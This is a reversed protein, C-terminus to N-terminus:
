WKLITFNNLANCMERVYLHIKHTERMLSVIIYFSFTAYERQGM